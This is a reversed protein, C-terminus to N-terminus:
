KKQCSSHGGVVVGYAWTPCLGKSDTCLDTKPSHLHYHPHAVEELSCMKYKTPKCGTYIFRGDTDGCHTDVIFVIKATDYQKLFASVVGYPDETKEGAKIVKMEYEHGM